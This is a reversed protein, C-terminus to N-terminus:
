DIFSGNWTYGDFRLPKHHVVRKSPKAPKFQVTNYLNVTQKQEENVKTNQALNPTISENPLEVTAVCETIVEEIKVEDPIPESLIEEKIEESVKKTNKTKSVAVAVEKTTEKKASTKTKKAM